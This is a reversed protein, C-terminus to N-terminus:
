GPCVTRRRRTRRRSWPLDPQGVGEAVRRRQGCSAAAPRTRAPEEGLLHGPVLGVAERVVGEPPLADVARRTKVWKGGASVYLERATRAPAPARPAAVEGLLPAGGRRQQREAVAVAAAARGPLHEFPGAPPRGRLSAGPRADLVGAANKASPRAPTGPRGPRPRRATGRTGGRCRCWGPPSSARCGACRAGAAPPRARTSRRPAAPRARRVRVGFEVPEPLVSSSCCNWSMRGPLEIAQTCRSARCVYAFSACGARLPSRPPASRASRGRPDSGTVAFAAGCARAVAYRREPDGRAVAAGGRVSRVHRHPRPRPRCRAPCRGARPHVEVGVPRQRTSGRGPRRGRRAGARSRPWRGAVAGPGAWCTRRTPCRRADVAVPAAVQGLDGLDHDLRVVRPLGPDPHM